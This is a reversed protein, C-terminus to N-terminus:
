VQLHSIQTNKAKEAVMNKAVHRLSLSDHLIFLHQIVILDCYNLIEDPYIKTDQEKPEIAKEYLQLIKKSKSKIVKSQLHLSM